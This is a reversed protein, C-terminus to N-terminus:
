NKIIKKYIYSFIIKIDKKNILYNILLYYSIVIITIIIGQFILEFYSSSSIPFFVYLYLSIIIGILINVLLIKLYPKISIKLINKYTYFLVDATRYCFSCITGILLGYIGLSTFVLLLLSIVLNIVAEIIAGSQTEKFHGTVNICILTPIRIQNMFLILSFLFPLWKDIYNVDYIKITYLRVFPLMLCLSIVTVISLLITFSIEYIKYNILFEEKNSNYKKGFSALPASLFTMQIFSLLQGFVMNYISYISVNQLTSFITLLIIDTQNVILGAINHILVSWRQTIKEKFPLAKYNINKYTKKVYFNYGINKIFVCLLFIGQVIIISKGSKLAIIRFICSIFAVIIDLVYLIYVEQNATLLAKYKGGFIYSVVNTAGILFTLGAALAYEVQGNLLLPFFITVGILLIIFTVTIKKYEHGTASIIGSVQDWDNKALPSYLAQISAMGIGAELLALYSMIQMISSTLGNISSGYAVLIQNQVIIGTIMTVIRSIISLFMNKTIKRM